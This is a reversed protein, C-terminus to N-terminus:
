GDRTVVSGGIGWFGVKARWAVPQSIWLGVRGLGDDARVREGSAPLM